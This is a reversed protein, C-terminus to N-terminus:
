NKLVMECLERLGEPTYFLYCAVLSCVIIIIFLTKQKKNM